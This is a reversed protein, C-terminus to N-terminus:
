DADADAAAMLWITMPKENLSLMKPLLLGGGGGM